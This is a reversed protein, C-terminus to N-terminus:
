DDNSLYWGRERHISPAHPIEDGWARKSMEKDFRWLLNQLSCASSFDDRSSCYALRIKERESALEADSLKEFWRSSYIESEAVRIKLENWVRTLTDKNKLGIAIAVITTICVGALILEVKHEKIWQLIKEKDEM